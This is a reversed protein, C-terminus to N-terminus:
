LPQATGIWTAGCM